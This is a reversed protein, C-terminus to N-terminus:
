TGRSKDKMLLLAEEPNDVGKFVHTAMLSPGMRGHMVV